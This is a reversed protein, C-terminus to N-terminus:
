RMNCVQCKGYYKKGYKFVNITGQFDAQAICDSGCKYTDHSFFKWCQNVLDDDDYGDGNFYGDQYSPYDLCLTCYKFEEFVENFLTLTYEQVNTSSQGGNQYGYYDDYGYNYNKNKNNNNNNKKNNYYNGGYNGGINDANTEDDENYLVTCDADMYLGIEISGGEVPRPAKYVYNGYRDNGADECEGDGMYDLGNTAISYESSTYYWLHKSIQEFYDYFVARYVGLLKWETGADHCDLLSIPQNNKNNKNYNNNKNKNNNNNSNSNYGNNNYGNKNYYGNNQSNYQGNAQNYQGGSSVGGANYYGQSYYDDSQNAVYENIGNGQYNPNVYAAWVIWRQCGQGNNKNNNNYYAWNNNKDDCHIYAGLMRYAQAWADYYQSPDALDQLEYAQLKNNRLWRNEPRELKPDDKKMQEQM